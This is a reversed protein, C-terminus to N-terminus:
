RPQAGKTNTVKIDAKPHISIAPSHPKSKNENVIEPKNTHNFASVVAKFITFSVIVTMIILTKTIIIKPINIEFIIFDMM